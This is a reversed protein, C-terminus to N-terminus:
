SRCRTTMTYPIAEAPNRGTMLKTYNEAAKKESLSIKIKAPRNKAASKKKQAKEPQAPRYNHRGGCVNCQVKGIKEDVMAIITHNTIDKCKLCQSDVEEGANLVKNEAM